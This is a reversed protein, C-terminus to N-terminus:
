RSDNTLKEFTDLHTPNPHLESKKMLLSLRNKKEQARHSLKLWKLDGACLVKLSKGKASVSHNQFTSRKGKSATASININNRGRKSYLIIFKESAGKCVNVYRIM